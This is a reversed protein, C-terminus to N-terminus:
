YGSRMDGRESDGFAARGLTARQVDQHEDPGVDAGVSPHLALRPSEGVGTM